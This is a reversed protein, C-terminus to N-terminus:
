DVLADLLDDPRTQRSQQQIDGAIYRHTLLRELIRCGTVSARADEPLLAKLEVKAREHELRAPPPILTGFGRFAFVSACIVGV